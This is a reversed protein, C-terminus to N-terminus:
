KITYYIHTDMYTYMNSLYKNKTETPWSNLLTETPLEPEPDKM